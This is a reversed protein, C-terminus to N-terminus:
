PKDKTRLLGGGPRWKSARISGRVEIKLDLHGGPRWKSAGIADQLDRPSGEPRSQLGRPHRQLEQHTKPSELLASQLDRPPRPVKRSRELSWKPLMKPQKQSLQKDINKTRPPLCFRARHQDKELRTKIHQGSNGLIASITGM